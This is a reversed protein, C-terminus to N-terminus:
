PKNIGVELEEQYYEFIKDLKDLMRHKIKLCEKQTIFDKDLFEDLKEFDKIAKELIEILEITNM